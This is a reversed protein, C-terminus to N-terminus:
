LRHLAEGTSLGLAAWASVRIFSPDWVQSRNGALRNLVARPQGSGPPMGAYVGAM